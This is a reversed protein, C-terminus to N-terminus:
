FTLYERMVQKALRPANSHTYVLALNYAAERHFQPASKDGLAMRYYRTTLAVLGIQHFARGFNYLVLTSPQRFVPAVDGDSPEGAAAPAPPALSIEAYRLLFAIGQAVQQHRNDSKRQMARHLYAVGLTLNLMADDPALAYARLYHVAAPLYSAACSLIHGYVTLLVPKATWVAETEDQVTLGPHLGLAEVEAPTMSKRLAGAFRHQLMRKFFKQCNSSAFALRDRAGGCLSAAYLRYVNSHYPYHTILWRAHTTTHEPRAAAVGLAMGVVHMRIMKAKDHWFVNADAVDHLVSFARDSQYGKVLAVCYRMLMEFWDDMAYGLYSNAQIM